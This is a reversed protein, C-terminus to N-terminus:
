TLKIITGEGERASNCIRVSEVGSKLALLANDIKPIMGDFIKGAIKLEAYNEENILKIVSSSDNVDLLVGQKEFLYVLEVDYDKSMAVAVSQAITDANTNLLQGHCDLTIPAVVVSYGSELLMALAERNIEDVKVDGVYGYDIEKAPRKVAPIIEGDAGCVGWAKVGRAHLQAVISKNIGGAYVMTVVEVTASDTIRRGDIMKTEIGLATSIKTAVKGGGHVLIKKGKLAAFEDLLSSLAVPSDVVHGGIKIVKLAERCM